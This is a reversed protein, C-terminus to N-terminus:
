GTDPILAGRRSQCRGLTRAAHERHPSAAARPLSGTGRTYRERRPVPYVTFTPVFFTSKDAMLKLLEPDEDLYAGHEISYVGAEVAMRIAPGGVAHCMVKRGLAHAEDM